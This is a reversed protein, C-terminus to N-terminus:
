SLYNFNFCVYYKKLSFTCTCTCLTYSMHIWVETMKKMARYIEDHHSQLKHRVSACHQQQEVQFENDEYVKKGSLRVMLLSCMERCQRAIFRNSTKYSDILTRVRQAHLRCETVYELIGESAWTLKVMGPRIKKDISRIREKFLAREQPELSSIIRNYDRVILMVNERLVRLNEGAQYIDGAFHPIEFRLREWCRMENLLKQLTKSFNSSLMGARCYVCRYVRLDVSFYLDNESFCLNSGMASLACM